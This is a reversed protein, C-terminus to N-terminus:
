ESLLRSVKRDQELLAKGTYITSCIGSIAIQVSVVNNQRLM